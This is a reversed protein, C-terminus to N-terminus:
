IKSAVLGRCKTLEQRSLASLSAAGPALGNATLGTRSSVASPLERSQAQPPWIGTRAIAALYVSGDLSRITPSLGAARSVKYGDTVWCSTVLSSPYLCVACHPRIYGTNWSPGFTLLTRHSQGCPGYLRSGAHRARFSFAPPLKM